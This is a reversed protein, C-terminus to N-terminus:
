HAILAPGVLTANAHRQPLVSDMGPVIVSGKPANALTVFRVMTDMMVNVLGHLLVHAMVLATLKANLRTAFTVPGDMRVVAPVKLARGTSVVVKLVIHSPATMVEGVKPVIVSEKPTASVMCAAIMPVNPKSAFPVLFGLPVSACVLHSANGLLIAAIIEAFPYKVSRGLGVLLVLASLLSWASVMIPVCEQAHMKNISRRAIPFIGVLIANVFVLMAETPRVFGVGLVIMPAFWRRAIIEKGVWLVSAVAMKQNASVMIPVSALAHSWVLACKGLMALTVNAFERHPVVVM